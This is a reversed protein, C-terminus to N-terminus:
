RITGNGSRGSVSRNGPDCKGTLYVEVIGHFGSFSDCRIALTGRRADTNTYDEAWESQYRESAPAAAFTLSSGAMLMLFVLGVKKRGRRKM